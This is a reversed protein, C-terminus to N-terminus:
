SYVICACCSIRHMNVIGKTDYVSTQATYIIIISGDPKRYRYICVIIYQVHKWKAARYHFQAYAFMFCILIICLMYLLSFRPFYFYKIIFSAKYESTKCFSLLYLVVCVCMIIIIIHHLSVNHIYLKYVKIYM